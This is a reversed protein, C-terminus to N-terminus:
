TRMFWPTFKAQWLLERPPEGMLHAAVEALLTLLCSRVGALMASHVFRPVANDLHAGDLACATYTPRVIRM